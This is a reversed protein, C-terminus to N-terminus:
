EGFIVAVSAEAVYSLNTVLIIILYTLAVVLSISGVVITTRKLPFDYLGRWIFLLM